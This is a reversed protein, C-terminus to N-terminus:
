VLPDKGLTVEVEFAHSGCLLASAATDLGCRWLRLQAVPHEKWTEIINMIVVLM